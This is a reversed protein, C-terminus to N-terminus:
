RIVFSHWLSTNPRFYLKVCEQGRCCVYALPWSWTGVANGRPLLGRYGNSLPSPPLWPRDPRPPSSSFDWCQVQRFSFGRYWHNPRLIVCIKHRKHTRTVFAYLFGSNFNWVNGIALVVFIVVVVIIIIAALKRKSKKLGPSLFM